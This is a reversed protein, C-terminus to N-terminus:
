KKKRLEPLWTLLFLLLGAGFIILAKNLNTARSYYWNDFRRFFLLFEHILGGLKLFM